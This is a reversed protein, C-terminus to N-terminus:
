KLNGSFILYLRRMEWCVRDLCWKHPNKKKFIIIFIVNISLSSICLLFFNPYNVFITTKTKNEHQPLHPGMFLYNFIISFLSRFESHLRRSVLPSDRKTTSRRCWWMWPSLEKEIEGFYYNLKKINKNINEIQIDVNM